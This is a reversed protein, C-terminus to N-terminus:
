AGAKVFPVNFIDFPGLFYKQIDKEKNCFCAGDAGQIASENKTVPL